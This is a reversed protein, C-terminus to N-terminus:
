KPHSSRLRLLFNWPRGRDVELAEWLGKIDESLKDVINQLEDLQVKLNVVEDFM